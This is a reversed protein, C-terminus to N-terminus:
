HVAPPQINNQIAMVLKEIKNQDAQTARVFLLNQGELPKPFPGLDLFTVTPPKMEVGKEGLFRRLRQLNDEGEKIGALDKLNNWFTEAIFNYHRTLLQEQQTQVASNTEDATGYFGTLALGVIVATTLFTKM